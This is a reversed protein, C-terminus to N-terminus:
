LTKWTELWHLSEQSLIKGKTIENIREQIVKYRQEMKLLEEQNAVNVMAQSQNAEALLKSIEAKQKKPLNAKDLEFAFAKISNDLQLGKLSDELMTMISKGEATNKYASSLQSIAQTITSFWQSPSQMTNPFGVPSGSSGLQASTSSQGVASGGFAASPSIGGELYRKAVNAPKNYENIMNFQEKWYAQQKAMMREQWAQQQAISNGAIENGLGSFISGVGSGIVSNALNNWYASKQEANM